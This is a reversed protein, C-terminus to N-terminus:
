RAFGRGKKHSGRQKAKISKLKRKQSPGVYHTHKAVEDMLGTEVVKRHFRKLMNEIGENPNRKSIKINAARSMRGKKRRAVRAQQKSQTNKVPLGTGDTNAKGAM